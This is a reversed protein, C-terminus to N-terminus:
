RPKSTRDFSVTVEASGKPLPVLSQRGGPWRVQLESPAESFGLVQIAGDQSWYGSGGHIERAPGLRSGFRLRLVAGIGWANGSPGDLRVRLGPKALRNHFLQTAAGNQSVVLDLRGDEDFDGAASGRQEGYVEIGSAQASMPELKGQGDGRLLLGRGADMRPTGAALAFCNQSLFVDEAGDGDFDAINVGFAPSWQAEQPLARWEFHDGRNLFVSSVLTNIETKKTKAILPGLMEALPAESYARHSRFHEGLWPLSRSLLSLPRRPALVNAPPDYETEILDIAGRETLDGFYLQLSLERSARYESNLGWNGVVIDLRGDGDLDGTTIGNWWGTFASLGLDATSERLRGAQNHFVRVPGWECAIVLDPLGDGDLDSWLAASVLGVQDLVKSNEADLEFRGATSHFIRSSGPEPYRGPVVRGGVFLDLDGDGDLDGLAIPGVSSSDGPIFEEPKSGSLDFVRAPSEESIGDEYSASALVLRAADGREQSWGLVMTQDRKAAINFPANTMSRFGRKGENVYGALRGGSGSTILLDEHGDGNVDIWSVGPGLQSLRRPLLPQREFEDFSNEHHTHALVSSVNEFLTPKPAPKLVEPARSAEALTSDVEYLRNAEVGDIRTHRGDRWEIELQLPGTGTGAAFVLLPDSGALYRGGSVVEQRQPPLGGGRLQVTSGVAQTNPSKGRLRVAVRPAGVDNRYLGAASGLNNVVLDLDGDGDFDAAAIAHHVALDDTGWLSTVDEFGAGNRNRFAVVPTELRPYLRMHEMLERTFAKQREAESPFGEWSHQRNSIEAEADLDQVDKAHGSTILLDPWGDLDVDLFLPQWAWESAAVGAFNAIEAYTGDGRNHFLTNRMFQPRDEIGGPVSVTMPQAAGQRKRLRPDRSLMDVVFLDLFGDGDIDAFDVGMSSASTNRMSLRPLARYRGQGNNIWIRDPTWFDNCVYLDPWGDGNMDRFSATLGWDRPPETLPKGDEDLFSGDTWSVETFRGHGDNRFLQDVEGLELLQGDRFILRGQYRPPVVPKGGVSQLKVQGRDRIDDARNNAVYLDLTGDGDFDALTLTMSGHGSRLGSSETFDRFKGHGDNRFCSVGRGVSSVLLDLFGDGDVDAFVAGRFFKGAFVLGAEETVDKFRWEGLNKYLTCRSNLGCFFLDPLGDHDFDGVAVGSGDLLVRNFAGQWDELQNTFTIGTRDGGLRTFGPKGTGRPELTKWRYGVEQKWAPEAARGKQWLLAWLM